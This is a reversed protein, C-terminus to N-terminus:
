GRRVRVRDPTTRENPDEGGRGGDLWAPDFRNSETICTFKDCREQASLPDAASADISVTTEPHAKWPRRSSLLFDIDTGSERRVSSPRATPLAAATAMEGSAASAAVISANGCLSMSASSSLIRSPM